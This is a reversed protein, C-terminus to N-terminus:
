WVMSTTCLGRCTSLVTKSHGSHDDIGEDEEERTHPCQAEENGGMKLERADESNSLERRGALHFLQDISIITCRVVTVV